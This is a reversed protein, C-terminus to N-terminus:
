SDSVEETAEPEEPEFEITGLYQDLIEAGYKILNPDQSLRANTYTTIAQVM